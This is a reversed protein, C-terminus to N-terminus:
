SGKSVSALTEVSETLVKRTWNIHWLVGAKFATGWVTKYLETVSAIKENIQEEAMGKKALMERMSKMIIEFSADVGERFETSASIETANMNIESTVSAGLASSTGQAM